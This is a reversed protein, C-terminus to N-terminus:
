NGGKAYIGLMTSSYYVSARYYYPTISGDAEVRPFQLRKWGGDGNYRAEDSVVEDRVQTVFQWLASQVAEIDAEWGELKPAISLLDFESATIQINAGGAYNHVRVSFKRNPFAAKLAARIEQAETKVDVAEARNTKTVENM